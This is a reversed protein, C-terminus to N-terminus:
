KFLYVTIPGEKMDGTIVGHVHNRQQKTLLEWERPLDYRDYYGKMVPIYDNGCKAGQDYGRDFLWGVAAHFPDKDFTRKEVVKRDLFTEM